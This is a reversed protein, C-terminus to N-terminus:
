ARSGSEDKPAPELSWTWGILRLGLREAVRQSSLNEADTSYFLERGTPHLIAAWAAVTAAAYGRGRYDPDTWAGCEAAEASMAVPTHAISVVRDGVVAIAWPGHLKNDLLDDWEEAEWNGPNAARLRPSPEGVSTEIKVESAFTCGKPIVYYPGGRQGTPGVHYEIIDKLQRLAVPEVNPDGAVPHGDFAAQLDEVVSEPLKSGVFLLGGDTASAVTVGDSGPIRGTEDFSMRAVIEFLQLDTLLRDLMTRRLPVPNQVGAEEGGDSPEPPPAEPRAAADIRGAPEVPQGRHAEEHEATGSDGVPNPM